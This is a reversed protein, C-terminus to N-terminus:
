GGKLHRGKAFHTHRHRIRKPAAADGMQMTNATGLFLISNARGKIQNSGPVNELYVSKCVSGGVRCPPCTSLGAPQCAVLHAFFTEVTPPSLLGKRESVCRTSKIQIFLAVVM